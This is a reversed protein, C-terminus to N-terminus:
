FKNIIKSNNLKNGFNDLNSTSKTSIFLHNLLFLVSIPNDKTKYYLMDLDFYNSSRLYNFQTFKNFVHFTNFNEEFYLYDVYKNSELSNFFFSNNNFFQNYIINKSFFFESVLDYYKNIQNKKFFFYILNNNIKNIKEFYISNKSFDEFIIGNDAIRFMLKLLKDFLIFDNNPKIFFIFFIFLLIIFIYIFYIGISIFYFIFKILFNFLINTKQYYWSYIKNPNKKINSLNVIFNFIFFFNSELADPNATDKFKWGMLYLMAIGVASVAEVTVANIIYILFVFTSESSFLYLLLVPIFMVLEMIFLIPVLPYEIFLLTFLLIALINLYVLSLITPDLNGDTNLIGFWLYNYGNFDGSLLDNISNIYFSESFIPSNDSFIESNFYKNNKHLITPTSDVVLGLGENKYSIVGNIKEIFSNGNSIIESSCNISEIGDLGYVEGFSENIEGFYRKKNSNKDDLRLVPLTCLLTIKKFNRIFLTTLKLM